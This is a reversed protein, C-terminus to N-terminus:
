RPSNSKIGIENYLCSAPLFLSLYCLPLFSSLPLSDKFRPHHAKKLFVCLCVTQWGSLRLWSLCISGDSQQECSAVSLLSLPHFLSTHLSFHPYSPPSSVPSFFLHTWVRSLPLSSLSSPNLSPSSFLRLSPCLSSSVATIVCIFVHPRETQTLDERGNLAVAATHTHTHDCAPHLHCKNVKQSISM